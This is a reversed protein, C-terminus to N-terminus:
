RRGFEDSRHSRAVHDKRDAIAVMVAMRLFIHDRAVDLAAGAQMARVGVAGHPNPQAARSDSEPMLTLHPPAVPVGPREFQVWFSTETSALAQKEANLAAATVIIPAMVRLSLIGKPPSVGSRM